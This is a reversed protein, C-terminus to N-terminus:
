GGIFHRVLVAFIYIVGGTGGMAAGTAGHKLLAPKIGAPPTHAAVQTALAAVTKRIPGTM